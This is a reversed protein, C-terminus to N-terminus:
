NTRIESATPGRRRLPQKRSQHTPPDPGVCLRLNALGSSGALRRALPLARRGGPQTLALRRRFEGSRVRVDGIGIKTSDPFFIGLNHGETLHTVVVNLESRAPNANSPSSGFQTTFQDLTQDCDEEQPIGFPLWILNLM